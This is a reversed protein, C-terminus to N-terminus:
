NFLNSQGKDVNKKQKLFDLNFKILLYVRELYYKYMDTHVTWTCLHGWLLCVCVHVCVIVINNGWSCLQCYHYSLILNTKM